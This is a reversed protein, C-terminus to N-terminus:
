PMHHYCVTPPCHRKRGRAVAEYLVDRTSTSTGAHAQPEYFKEGNGQAGVGAESAAEAVQCSQSVVASRALALSRVSLEPALALSTPNAEPSPMSM